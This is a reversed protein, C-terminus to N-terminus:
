KCIPTSCIGYVNRSCNGSKIRTKNSNSIRYKNRKNPTLDEDGGDCVQKLRLSLTIEHRRSRKSVCLEKGLKILFQRRSQGSLFIDKCINYMYTNLSVIHLLNFLATLIWRRSSIKTSYSRLMDDATDVGGKNNNYYDLIAKLKRKEGEYVEVTKYESFLLFVIKNKKAKYSLMM